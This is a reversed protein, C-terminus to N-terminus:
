SKSIRVIGDMVSDIPTEQGTIVSVFVSAAMLLVALGFLLASICRALDINANKIVERIISKPRM